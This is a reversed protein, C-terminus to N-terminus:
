QCDFGHAWYGESYLRMKDGQPEELDVLSGMFDMAERVDDAIEKPVVAAVEGKWGYKPELPKVHEKYLERLEDCRENTPEYCTIGDYVKAEYRPDDKRTPAKRPTFPVITVTVKEGNDLTLKQKTSM